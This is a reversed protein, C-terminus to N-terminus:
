NNLNLRTLSLVLRVYSIWHLYLLLLGIINVLWGSLKSCGGTDLGSFKLRFIPDWTGPALRADPKGDECDQIRGVTGRPRTRPSRWPGYRGVRRAAWGGPRLFPHDRLGM